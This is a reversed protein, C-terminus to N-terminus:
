NPWTYGGERVAVKAEWQSAFGAFVSDGFEGSAPDAVLAKTDAFSHCVVVPHTHIVGSFARIVVYIRKQLKIRGQGSVGRPDGALCRRFFRGTDGAIQRRDAETLSSTVSAPPALSSGAIPGQYAGPSPSSSAESSAGVVEFDVDEVRASLEVLRLQIRAVEAQLNKIEALVAARESM